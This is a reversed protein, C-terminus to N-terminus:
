GEEPPPPLPQWHTPALNRSTYSDARQWWGPTNKAFWEDYWYVIQARGDGFALFRTGDRPAPREKDDIPIWTM